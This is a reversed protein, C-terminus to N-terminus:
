SAQPPRAPRDASILLRDSSKQDAQRGIAVPMVSPDIGIILRKNSTEDARKEM